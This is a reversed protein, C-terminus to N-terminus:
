VGFIKKIIVAIVTFIGSNIRLSGVANGTLTVEENVANVYNVYADYAALYEDMAEKAGEYSMEVFQASGYCEVLAAYKEDETQCAKYIAVSEIFTISSEAKRDLNIKYEDYIAVAKEAGEVSADIYYYLLTAEDFYKKQESYTEATRMREVINVFYVANQNLIKGYDEERLLLEAKCTELNNLLNVIREDKYNLENKNIYREIQSVYGIKEIYTETGLVQDLKGSIYAVHEDQHLAYFFSYANNFYLVADKVGKYTSDYAPQGDIGVELIIPKLINLYKEMEERNALWDEETVYGSLRDVCNVIKNSNNEKMLEYVIADANLYIEYAAILDLFNERGPATENTILSIDIGNNGVLDKAKAYHREKTALTPANEFKNIYRIFAEANGDYTAERVIRQYILNYETYDPQDNNNGDIVLDILGNNKNAFSAVKEAEALRTKANDMNRELNAIAEVLKIYEALNLKRVEVLLKEVDFALYNDVAAKLEETAANETYSGVGNEEDYTWYNSLAEEARQYALYQSALTKSEDNMYNVYYLFQEDATMSEFKDRQRYSTGSYISINDYAIEGYTSSQGSLRFALKSHDYTQGSYKADYQGIYEGAVYLKYVFENPEFVIVIHLWEGKVFANPLLIEGGVGKARINGEGDAFFYNAPFVRSGDPMNYGGPEIQIGLAPMDGMTAVDFEFVLGESASVKYTSLTIQAYSAAPSDKELYRHVYYRNNNEDVEIGAQNKTGKLQVDWRGGLDNGTMGARCAEWDETFFVPLDYDNIINEGDLKEYNIKVARDHAASLEDFEAKLASLDSDGYPTCESLVRKARNLAVQNTATALTTEIDADLADVLLDVTKVLASDFQVKVDNLGEEDTVYKLLDNAKTIANYADLATVSNKGIADLQPKTSSLLLENVKAVAEDYGEEAPDITHTGFYEGAALIAIHKLTADTEAEAATILKNLGEVTGTNGDETAYALLVCGVTLFAFVCIVMLIKKFNRM